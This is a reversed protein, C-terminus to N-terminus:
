PKVERSYHSYIDFGSDGWSFLKGIKVYERQAARMVHEMSIPRKEGAALFAANLAINKINGGAIDLRALFDYDLGEVEAKSPFVRQWIRRRNEIDPFPFDVLFRLRRLFANDLASKRNTALIALGRYDEMRQLLYDVEINAYRDHSDKVETRNGFLADAEDFFLITGSQEAADFIKKLNKETEGIYKSVVGALDIRYLDLDLHNALVEAAMTKGTGSPGAFLASIGRGRALKAGFGWLEYVQFRHAVQGAIERLQRSIEEPLIIDEWFYGSIIRQALGELHRGAQERAAQWLDQRTPVGMSESARFNAQMKANAVAQVIAQPGFDFQQVLAEIYGNLPEGYGNINKSQGNLAETWLFCQEAADPKPLVVPLTKLESRWRESSGIFLFTDLQEILEELISRRSRDAAEVDETSLYFATHLLMAERELRSLLDQREPGSPPLAGIGLRYLRWGLRAALAHAASQKGAGPPGYINVVPWRDTSSIDALSRSAQEMAERQSPALPMPMVPHLLDALREDLRNVGRLYDAIRQDLYLPRSNNTLASSTESEITVLRFRCLPAKPLFRNCPAHLYADDFSLEDKLSYEDDLSSLLVSRAEHENSLLNAWGFFSLALHPTVYKRKIDDQVYSYIREFAPDLEPALCMLLVNSDFPTLGFLHALKDQAPLHGAKVALERNAAINQEANELARTIAAAEPDKQYFSAEARTDQDKLIQDIQADSIVLGQYSQLQLPDNQWLRRLWLIKRHFLLRLWQLQADLYAYNAAAWSLKIGTATTQAAAAQMTM